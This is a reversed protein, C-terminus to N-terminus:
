DIKGAASQAGAGAGAIIVLVMMFGSVWLGIEISDMSGMTEFLSMM